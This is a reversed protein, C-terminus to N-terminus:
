ATERANREANELSRRAYLFWAITLAMALAALAGPAFTGVREILVGGVFATLFRSSNDIAGAIGMAGGTDGRASAKTILSNSVTILTSAAFSLPVLAVALAWVNPTLAWAALSVVMVPAAVGLLAEDSFRRTLIRLFVGQMLSVLVGIWAFVYGTERATLNLHFKNFLAINQQFMAFAVSFGAWFILLTAMDRRAAYKQLLAGLDPLSLIRARTTTLADDNNNDDNDDNQKEGSIRATLYTKLGAANPASEPLLLAILLFNVACLAASALATAAFGGNANVVGGLAPGITFGLGFAAGIIGLAASREEPSTVDAIYAQALPVNAAVFGALIRALFVVWLAGAFALIIFGVFNGFIDLLFLPKRGVSDSARGILPAGIFQCLAYLGTLAGVESASAGLSLAFYPLVPLLLSFSVIDLLVIWFVLGLRRRSTPSSTMSYTM